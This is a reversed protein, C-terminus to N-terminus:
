AWEKTIRFSHTEDGLINGDADIFTGTVEYTDRALHGTPLREPPVIVDYPGGPRYCGLMTESMSVVVGHRKRVDVFKLGEVARGLRFTLGIRIEAGEKLEVPIGPSPLPVVQEGNGEVQLTMGLLEFALTGHDPDAFSTKM